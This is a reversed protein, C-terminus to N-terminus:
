IKIVFFFTFKGNEEGEGPTELILNNLTSCFIKIGGALVQLYIMFNSLSTSTTTCEITTAFTPFAEFSNVTITHFMQTIKVVLLVFDAGLYLIHWEFRGKNIRYDVSLHILPPFNSIFWFYVILNSFAHTKPIETNHRLHCAFTGFRNAKSVFSVIESHAVTDHNTSSAWM